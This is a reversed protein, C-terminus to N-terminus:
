RKRRTLKVTKGLTKGGPLRLQLRVKRTKGPRIAKRGRANLRLTATVTRGRKVGLKGSALERKGRSLIRLRARGKPANAAFRVRVRVTGKRTAKLRRPLFALAPKSSGGNPGPGPIAGTTFTADAGAYSRGGRVAVVRYHYTTSAQLGAAVAAVSVATAGGAPTTGGAVSAGYGATTGYEFVIQAPGGRPVVTGTLTASAHGIGTAPGTDAAVGVPSGPVKAVYLEAVDVFDAGSTGPQTGQPSRAVLQLYRVAPRNGSFVGRLEGLSTAGFAGATLSTFPGAATPATLVQFGGLAASADDGCGPSPDIEVRGVDIPAGLAVTLTQSASPDTSWVTAPDDDILGGPGCGSSTNDPGTFAILAAAHVPSAWDRTLSFPVTVTGNEPVAVNLERDDAYGAKRARVMPFSRSDDTRVGTIAYAGAGNSQAVNLPGLGTDLGSVGVTAGAVPAGDEDRVTGAITGTAGLTAPDTFDAVPAGDGGDVTAAFYGMGRQAFVSWMLADDDPASSAALIANRLDLFSPEPPVLRLGDTVYQRAKRVGLAAGHRTILAQRLSWLTQAWIEGDAHVEPGSLIKGFDAYTLGGTRRLVPDTTGRDPCGAVATGPTCDLPQIRLGGSMGNDLYRGLRVDPGAADAQRGTAVLYDMAYFDSLGEGLAGSQTSNLAGYGAADTVIRNTLGHAYEHFVVSADNAGDYAGFFGDDRQWLYMQMLGPQGDPLTLFNANNRHEADPVGPGTAAGDMAQALVRDGDRFHNENFSIDADTRLHDAFDNVLYFLNTVSQRRNIGWSGANNPNWTCATSPATTATGLCGDNAFDGFFSLAATYPPAVESNPGPTFNFTKTDERYGVVDSTDSFAHANPGSLTTSSTLWSPSLPVEVQGGVAPTYQFVQAFNVRNARRVTAGSRADVLVDYVGTSSVPALVRWALRYGTDARYVALAATGGDEFRTARTPGTGPRDVGVRPPTAGVSRRAAAYAARAGLEPEVSRLALDAAPPGTVAVLRGSPTLSADLGADTVPIGRYRQEWSVRELGGARERRTLRLGDLDDGDLGFAPAHERVYDLAVAAGDRGSPATLYGDLRSVARLTRTQEDLTLTGLRGLRDRLRARARRGPAAVGAPAGAAASPAADRADFNGAEPTDALAAAPVLIAAVVLACLAARLPVAPQTM